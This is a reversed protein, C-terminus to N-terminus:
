HCTEKLTPVSAQGYLVGVRRGKESPKAMAPGGRPASRPRESRKDATTETLAQNPGGSVDSRDQPSPVTGSRAPASLASPPTGAVRTHHFVEIWELIAVGPGVGPHGVDAPGLRTWGTVTGGVHAPGTATCRGHRRGETPIYAVSVGPPHGGGGGWGQDDSGPTARASGPPRGTDAM